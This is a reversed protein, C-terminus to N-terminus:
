SVTARSHFAAAEAAARTEGATMPPEGYQNNAADGPLAFLVFLIVSGIGPLMALLNLWGTRGGDHLRRSGVALLPLLMVLLMLCYLYQTGLVADFLAAMGVALMAFFTFWWYEARSARGSFTAYKGLCTRVAQTFSM